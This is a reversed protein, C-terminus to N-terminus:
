EVRQAGAERECAVVEIDAAAAVQEALFLGAMDLFDAEFEVLLHQFFRHEILGAVLYSAGSEAAYALLDAAGSLAGPYAVYRMDGYWAAHPKRAMVTPRDDGRHRAGVWVRRAARDM